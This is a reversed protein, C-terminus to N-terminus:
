RLAQKDIVDGVVDLALMIRRLPGACGQRKGKRDGFADFGRRQRDEDIQDRQGEYQEGARAEDDEEDGRCPKQSPFIEFERRHSKTRRRLGLRHALVVGRGHERRSKDDGGKDRDRDDIQRRRQEAHREHNVHM